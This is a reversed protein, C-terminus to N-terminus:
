LSLICRSTAKTQIPLFNCYFSEDNVVAYSSSRWIDMIYSKQWFLERNLGNVWLFLTNM